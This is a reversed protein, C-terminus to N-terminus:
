AYFEKTDYVFTIRKKCCKNRLVSNYETIKNNIANSDYTEQFLLIHM